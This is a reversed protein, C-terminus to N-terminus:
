PNQSFKSDHVFHHQNPLDGHTPTLNPAHSRVDGNHTAMVTGPGSLVHFTIPVESASVALHGQADRVLAAVLATDQGDAFLAEGTGTRPSPADVRLEITAGQGSSARKHTAITNNNSDLCTALLVGRTWTLNFEASGASDTSLTQVTQGNLSLRIHRAGGGSYVHVVRVRTQRKDAGSSSAYEARSHRQEDEWHEVIHCLKASGVPPRDPADMRVSSLWLSRYLFAAGKPFGVLCFQGFSSIVHPWGGSEGYYDVRQLM